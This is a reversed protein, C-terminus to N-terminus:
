SALITLPGAPEAEMARALFGTVNAVAFSVGFLNRKRSVGPIPRPYPSARFRPLAGPDTPTLMSISDRDCEYDATVGAVGTMSGPFWLVENAERASVIISGKASAHAIAEA